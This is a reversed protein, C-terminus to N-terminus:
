TWTQTEGSSQLWQRPSSVSLSVQCSGFRSKMLGRVHILDAVRRVVKRENGPNTPVRGDRHASTKEVYGRVKEFNRATVEDAAPDFTPHNPYIALFSQDVIKLFADELSSAPPVAPDFDRSLSTLVDFQQSEATIRKPDAPEIGYAQKLLSQFSTMTGSFLNQLIGLAQARDTASAIASVRM